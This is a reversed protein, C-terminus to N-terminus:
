TLKMGRIDKRGRVRKNEAKQLKEGGGEGCHLLVRKVGM